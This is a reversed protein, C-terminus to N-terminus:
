DPWIITASCDSKWIASSTSKYSVGSRTTTSKPKMATSEFYITQSSTWGRFVAIGLSNVSKPVTLRNISVCGSFASDGIETLKDPLEIETLGSCQYFADGGITQVSEPISVSYLSYCNSFAGSGISTVGDEIMVFGIMDKYPEWPAISKLNYDPMSGNGRIVLICDYDLEWDLSGTKGAALYLGSQEAETEPEKEQQPANNQVVTEGSEGSGGCRSCKASGGCSGCTGNGYCESCDEKGSGGCTRCNGSGNCGSCKVKESEGTYFNAEYTYGDGSCDMCEGDLCGFCEEEGSGGCLFCEGDICDACTGTGICYSCPVMVIEPEAEASPANETVKGIGEYAPEDATTESNNEYVSEDNGIADDSEQQQAPPEITDDKGDTLIVPNIPICCGLLMAALLAILIGRIVKQM